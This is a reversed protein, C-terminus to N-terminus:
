RALLLELRSGVQQSLDAIDGIWEIVKYIFIVNVAPLEEELVFINRRIKIQLVDVDNEIEDLVNIMEEVIVVERGKFGSELLEDLQQIAKHAQKSADISRILYEKLHKEIVTPFEMKRGTILGAVDKAKNAIKDQSALLSLLDIRSVPMFLGSPLNMRLTKKLEDAENEKARIEKQYQSMTEWDKKFVADLFEPLISVCEQVKRMHARMPKLPSSAFLDIIPNM